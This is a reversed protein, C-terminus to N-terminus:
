MLHSDMLSTLILFMDLSSKFFNFLTSVRFRIESSYTCKIWLYSFLHRIGFNWSISFWNQAKPQPRPQNTSFFPDPGIILLKQSGNKWKKLTLFFNLEKKFDRYCGCQFTAYFFPLNKKKKWFFKKKLLVM